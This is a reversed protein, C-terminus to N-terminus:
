AELKIVLKEDIDYSLSGCWPDTVVPTEGRFMVNEDHLDDMHANAELIDVVAQIKPDGSDRHYQIADWLKTQTVGLMDIVLYELFVAYSDGGLDYIKSLIKPLYENDQHQYCFELWRLYAGDNHFIKLAFKTDDQNYVYVEAHCGGGCFEFGLKEISAGSFKDKHLTEIIQDFM